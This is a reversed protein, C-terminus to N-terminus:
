MGEILRVYLRGAALDVDGLFEEVAPIMRDGQSGSVVYVDQAPLRLVDKLTGICTNSSLDWVSLGLLDQIYYRGKPLPVDERCFQLIQGRLAMADEVTNIGELKLLLLHKHPRASLVNKPLGQLYLRPVNKLFAPNDCWCDLRLEGRVGHTGVIRGADLLEM